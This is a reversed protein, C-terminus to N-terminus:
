LVKSTNEDIIKFGFEDELNLLFDSSVEFFLALRRIADATPEYVGCEWESVTSQGIELKEALQKQTLHRENRLEIIKKGIHM